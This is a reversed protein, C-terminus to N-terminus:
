VMSVEKTKMGNVGIFAQKLDTELDERGKEASRFSSNFATKTQCVNFVRLARPPEDILRIVYNNDFFRVFHRHNDSPYL